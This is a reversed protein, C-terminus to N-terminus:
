QSTLSMRLATSLKNVRRLAPPYEPGREALPDTSLWLSTKMDLYRAGYFSLNTERDLEKGNFLYPSKFSSTLTKM